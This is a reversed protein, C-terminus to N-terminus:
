RNHGDASTGQFSQNLRDPAYLKLTEIAWHIKDSVRQGFPQSTNWLELNEARNDDKIGNLHHVNENPLLARGLKQEVVILHELVYGRKDARSHEPMLLVVYGRGTRLRGGKWNPHNKRSREKAKQITLCGCSKIRGNNLKATVVVTLNGCSCQCLWRRNGAKSRSPLLNIVALSNVRLGSLDQNM